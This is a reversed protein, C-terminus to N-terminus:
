QLERYASAVNFAQHVSESVVFLGILVLMTVEDLTAVEAVRKDFVALDSMDAALARLESLGLPGGLRVADRPPLRAQRGMDEIRTATAAM